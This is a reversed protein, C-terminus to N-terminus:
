GISMSRVHSFIKIKVEGINKLYLYENPMTNLLHPVFYKPTRKGYKNTIKPIKLKRNRIPYQIEYQQRYEECLFYKVILLYKHLDLPTLIRLLYKSNNRFCSTVVKGHVSIIPTLTTNAAFGYCTLAYRLISDFLANYMIWMVWEPVTYRVHILRYSVSRLKATVYKVHLDFKFNNDIIVGLYKEETGYDLDQCSCNHEYLGNTLCSRTHCKIKRPVGGLQKHPSKIIIIKTKSSNMFIENNFFWKQILIIDNQLNHIATNLSHDISVVALDDAFQFLKSKVQLYQMDRAYINYFGPSLTSGTVLGYRVPQETSKINGIKTIQTRQYLYNELLRLVKNRIGVGELKKILIGHDLTEFAKMLDIFAVVCYKSEDISQNIELAFNDLLSNTSKGPRFGHQFEPIVNSTEIFPQIKDNILKELIKAFAPVNGVPRYNKIDDKRNKKHLPTIISVKLGRPISCTSLMANMFHCLVSKLCAFNEKIDVLRINDIGPSTVNIKGLVKELSEMTILNWYLSRDNEKYYYRNGLDLKPGLNSQKVKDVELMFSNNFSNCLSEDGTQGPFHKRLVEYASLKKKKGMVENAISWIKKSDGSNEKFLKLYYRNFQKRVLATVKNRCTRYANKLEENNKNRKWANFVSEKEKIADKIKGDIWPKIKDLENIEINISSKAYVSEFKLKIENYLQEPDSVKLLPEWDVKILEEKVINSKILTKVCKTKKLASLQEKINTSGISCGVFYHDAVKNTILFSQVNKLNKIKINVHDICSLKLENLVFEERTYDYITNVLGHSSLANLYEVGYKTKIKTCINIDGIIILKVKKVLEDSLFVNLQQLFIEKNKDPARYIGSLLFDNNNDVNKIRLLLHECEELNYFLKDVDYCKHVYVAIGGGNGKPRCRHFTEFEPLSYLGLEDETCNIETLVLVDLWKLIGSLYVQLTNWHKCISRINIHIVNLNNKAFPSYHKECEEMSKFKLFKVKNTQVLNQFDLTRSGM